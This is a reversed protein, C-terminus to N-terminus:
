HWQVGPYLSPLRLSRYANEGFIDMQWVQRAPTENTMEEVRSGWPMASLAIMVNGNAFQQISGGWSSYMDLTSQWEVAATKAQEDINLILARSYCPIQSGTSCLDGQTDLIREDGNDFIALKMKGNQDALINPYHQMNFWDSLANGELKFDGQYGLRWLIDGSGHGNQYDIKIIWSQHRMSLLLNGDSTLLVANSHTWDIPDVPQRNPDLHDFSNWFWVLNLNPDLDILVDGAMLQSTSQGALIESQVTQALFLFDGNPLKQVDHHLESLSLSYGARSLAAQVDAISASFLTDGALNVEKIIQTTSSVANVLFNGDDLLKGPFYAESADNFNQYFWLLNGDRDFVSLSIAGNTNLCDLMQVGPSENTPQSHIVSVVPIQGGSLGQTTFLQGADRVMTGDQLKLVARMQYDSSQKMGAVLVRVPLGDQPAPVFSTQLPSNLDQGFEVAVSTGQPIAVSYAAVLPNGTAAVMGDALVRLNQSNSSGGGPASNSVAVSINGPVGILSAPIEATIENPNLTTIQLPQGNVLVASGPVFGSGSISLTATGTNAFLAPPSVATVSPQPNAVTLSQFGSIGGGPTPNIVALNLTAASAFLSSPLQSQLDSSDLYSTAIPQGDVVISSSPNFGIGHVLLSLNSSGVPVLAISLQDLRPLPNVVSVKGLAMKASFGAGSQWATIVVLASTPVIPATYVGTSSIFGDSADGGRHGNVFWAIPGDFPATFPLIENTSVTASQPVLALSTSQPASIVPNTPSPTKGTEEFAKSGCGMVAASITLVTLALVANGGLSSRTM